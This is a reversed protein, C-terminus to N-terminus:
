VNVVLRGQQNVLFQCIGTQLEIIIIKFKM